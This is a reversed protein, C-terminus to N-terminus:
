FVFNNGIINVEIKKDVIFKFCKYRFFFWKSKNLNSHKNQPLYLLVHNLFPFPNKIHM